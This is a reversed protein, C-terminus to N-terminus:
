EEERNEFEDVMEYAKGMPCFECDHEECWTANIRERCFTNMLRRFTAYDDKNM